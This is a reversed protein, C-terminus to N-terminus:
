PIIHFRRARVYPVGDHVRLEGDIAVRQGAAIGAFWQAAGTVTVAEGERIKLAWAVKGRGLADKEPESLVHGILTVNNLGIRHAVSM